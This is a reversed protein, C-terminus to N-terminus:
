RTLYWNVCYKNSMISTIWKSDVISKDKLFSCLVVITDELEVVISCFLLDM